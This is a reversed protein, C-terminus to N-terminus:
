RRRAAYDAEVARKWDATLPGSGTRVQSIADAMARYGAQQGCGDAVWNAARDASIGMDAAAAQADMNAGLFIFEWGYRQQQRGIMEQVQRRTFATSANEMGDTTIVFITKEPVDERRAYKHVNGIHRIASGVADLLATCGGPLYDAPTMPPVNRIDVRDHLVQLRQDFLVTSVLARGPKQRQEELLANFGGVTDERLHAMSGSRDIIFVIETLNKRM